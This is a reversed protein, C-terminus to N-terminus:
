LVREEVCSGGLACICVHAPLTKAQIECNLNHHQYNKDSACDSQGIVDIIRSLVPLDMRVFATCMRVFAQTICLCCCKMKLVRAVEVLSNLDHM